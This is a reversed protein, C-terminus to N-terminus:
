KGLNGDPGLYNSNFRLCLFQWVSSRVIAPTGGTMPPAPSAEARSVPTYWTSNSVEEPHEVGTGGEGEWGEGGGGRVM